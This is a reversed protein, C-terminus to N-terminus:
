ELCLLVAVSPIYLLMGTTIVYRREISPGFDGNDCAAVRGISVSQTNEEIIFYLDEQQFCVSSIWSTVTAGQHPLKCSCQDKPKVTVNVKGSHETACSVSVQLKYSM